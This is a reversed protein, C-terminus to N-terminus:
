YLHSSVLQFNEVHLIRAMVEVYQDRTQRITCATATDNWLNGHEVMKMAKKQYKHGVEEIRQRLLGTHRNQGGNQRKKKSAIAGGDDIVQIRTGRPPPM